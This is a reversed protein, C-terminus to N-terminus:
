NQAEWCAIASKRALKSLPQGADDTIAALLLQFRNLMATITAAEFLDTNYEFQALLEGEREAMFLSLDLKATGTDSGIQEISLGSLELRTRPANQMAFAARILMRNRERKPRIAEVLKDVPIDQNEYAGLTVERVRKLLEIFTPDGSLDTRLPLINVFFGILGEIEARTRNAIPSGILMDQQGSYSYLLIEFAALLTMFLTAGERNSLQKLAALLSAPLELMQKAGNFTQEGTRNHDAPLQLTPLDNSLREKWYSLQKEFIEGQLWEKQWHAFDIYQIPLEALPSPESEVYAKYLLTFEKFFLGLSWGDGVIHHM